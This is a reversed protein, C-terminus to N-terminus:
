TPGPRGSLRRYLREHTPVPVGAERAIRVLEGSLAESEVSRGRDRDQQTSTRFAPHSECFAWCGERASPRVVVGRTAAVAALEDIARECAERRPEVLLDGLACDEVTAMVNFVANAVLKEWIAQDPDAVIECGAGAREFEARLPESWRSPGVQIRGGAEWRVVGPRVVESAVYAVGPVVRDRGFIGALREVNGLGNQLTLVGTGPGLLPRAAACAAATDYAKVAVVLLDARGADAPDASAPVRATFARIPGEISIGDRRIAELHAGRAVLFVDSGGAALLAGFTGGVAGAGLVVIRM